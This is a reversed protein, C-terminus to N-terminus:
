EEKEKEFNIYEEPELDKYSIVETIDKVSRCYACRGCSTPEIFGQKVELIRPMNARIQNLEHEMRDQDDLIIVAKDPPTEKSIAVILADLRKDRGMTLREVETYIALQQWYNFQEIFSVRRRHETSWQLDWISRTTKLDIVAKNPKYTDIKIKWEAGGIEATMIVEKEGGLTSFCFADQELTKIMEEAFRFESRLDGKMTFIEPTNRKFEELAMPSENWAHLFSVVLFDNSPAPKWDGQIKALAMAECRLFDNYQSNSMYRFNMEESYYNEANLM